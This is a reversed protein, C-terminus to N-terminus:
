AARPLEVWFTSGIGVVSEVGVRGHHAESLRKVTALGLGLGPAVESPMRLFPEFIREKAEDSLGPGSDRVEFRVVDSRAVVSLAVDRRPRGATYKIANSLLNGLISTLVGPACAVEADPIPGVTLTVGAAAADTEATSVVSRVV